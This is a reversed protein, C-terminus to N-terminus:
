PRYRSPLCRRSSMLFLAAGPNRPAAGLALARPDHPGRHVEPSDPLARLGNRDFAQARGEAYAAGGTRAREDRYGPGTDFLLLAAVREPHVIGFMLSLYGGLSHGAVVARSTGCADLIAKMDAMCCLHSYYIPDPETVTRGHGRMDWTIVQRSSALSQLNEQWM